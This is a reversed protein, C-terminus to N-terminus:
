DSFEKSSKKYQIDLYNIKKRLTNRNIGLLDAAKIQNGKTIALTKLILPREVEHIVRNYLGPPPYSTKHLDFYHSLNKEVSASLSGVSNINPIKQFSNIQEEISSASITEEPYLAVLRRIVNELERVNGPWKYNMLKEIADGTIIKKELGSRENIKLFHSVLLSIDEVRERLPPLIIPIVNLRYFLDERFLGEEIMDSLDRHTATVIRIDTNIIKRGGIPTFSGDQLVRLLRTQAELPMDGIEDLFLTGGNAQEFYGVGRKDAGTFAGREHGFLEAEILERPIAAMNVAVFPLDKRKSFDHLARAVLEKGTGSEGRIMVTLDTSVVKALVRYVEQMAPSRGVIPLDENEDVQNVKVNKKSTSSSYLAKLVISLLKDLDFPKPLYEYAGLKNAKIATLVTNQGSIVIVPLNPRIESIKPLAELGNFEPMVVDTIVLDGVKKELWSFLEKGSGTSRTTFGSRQLKKEIVTRIAVDDDAILVLSKSM